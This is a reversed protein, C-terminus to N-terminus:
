WITIEFHDIEPTIKPPYDNLPITNFKIINHYAYLGEHKEIFESLTGEFFVVGFSGMVLVRSNVSMDGCVKFLEKITM